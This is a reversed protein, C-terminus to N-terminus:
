LAQHNGPRLHHHVSLKDSHYTGGTETRSAGNKWLYGTFHVTRHKEGGPNRAPGTQDSLNRVRKAMEFPIGGVVRRDTDWASYLCIHGHGGATAIGGLCNFQEVIMTKAGMRAAAFGSAVGAPGGGIVLVDFEKATPNKNTVTIKSM